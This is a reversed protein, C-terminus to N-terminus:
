DAIKRSWFAPDRGLIQDVKQSANGVILIMRGGAQTVSAVRGVQVRAVTTTTVPTITTPPAATDDGSGCGVLGPALVAVGLIGRRVM